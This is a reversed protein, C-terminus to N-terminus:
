FQFYKNYMINPIYKEKEAEKILEHKKIKGNRGFTQFIHKLFQCIDISEKLWLNFFEGCISFANHDLNLLNM